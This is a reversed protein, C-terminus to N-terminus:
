YEITAPPPAYDNNHVMSPATVLVVGDPHNRLTATSVSGGPVVPVGAVMPSNCSQLVSEDIISNTSSSNADVVPIAGGFNAASEVSSASVTPVILASEPPPFSLSNIASVVPVAHASRLHGVYHERRTPRPPPPRVVQQQSSQDSGAALSYASSNDQIKRDIWPQYNLLHNKFKKDRIRKTPSMYQVPQPTLGSSEDESTLHDAFAVHWSQYNSLQENKKQSKLISRSPSANSPAHSRSHLSLGSSCASQDTLADAFSVQPYSPREHYRAASQMASMLESKSSVSSLDGASVVDDVILLDDLAMERSRLRTPYDESAANSHVSPKDHHRRRTIYDDDPALSSVDKQSRRKTRYAHWSDGSSSFPRMKPAHTQIPHDHSTHSRMSSM